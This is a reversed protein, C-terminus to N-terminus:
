SINQTGCLGGTWSDMATMELWKDGYLNLIKGAPFSAAGGLM